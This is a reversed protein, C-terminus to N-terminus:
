PGYTITPHNPPNTTDLHTRLNPMAAQEQWYGLCPQTSILTSTTSLGAHQTREATCGMWCGRLLRAPMAICCRPAAEKWCDGCHQSWKAHLRHWPRLLPMVAVAGQVAGSVKKLHNKCETSCTLRFGPMCRWPIGDVYSKVAVRYNSCASPKAQAGSALLLLALAAVLLAALSRIRLM